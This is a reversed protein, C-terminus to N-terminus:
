RRLVVRDGGYSRHDKLCLDTLPHGHWARPYRKEYALPRGPLPGTAELGQVLSALFVDRREGQRIVIGAKFAFFIRKASQFIAVPLTGWPQKKYLFLRNKVEQMGFRTIAVHHFFHAQRWHISRIIRTPRSNAVSRRVKDEISQSNRAADLQAQVRQTMVLCDTGSRWFRIPILSARLFTGLWL